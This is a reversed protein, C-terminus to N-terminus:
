SMWFMGELLEQLWKQGSLISTHMLTKDTFNLAYAAISAVSGIAALLCSAKKHKARRIQSTSPQSRASQSHSSNSVTVMTYATQVKVTIKTV